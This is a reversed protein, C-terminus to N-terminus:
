DGFHQPIYLEIVIVNFVPDLHSKMKKGVGGEPAPQIVRM